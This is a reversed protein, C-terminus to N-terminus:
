HVDIDRVQSSPVPSVETVDFECASAPRARRRRLTRPLRSGIPHAHRISLNSSSNRMASGSPRGARRRRRSRFQRHLRWGPPRRASDIEYAGVHDIPIELVPSEVPTTRRAQSEAAADAAPTACGTPPPSGTRHVPRGQLRAMPVRTGRHPHDSRTRAPMTTRRGAGGCVSRASRTRAPRRIPGCARSRSGGIGANGDTPASGIELIGDKRRWARTRCSRDRPRSTTASAGSRRPQRTPWRSLVASTSYVQAGCPRRRDRRPRPLLGCGAVLWAAVVLRAILGKVDPLRRVADGPDTRPARGRHGDDPRPPHRAPRHRRRGVTPRDRLLALGRARVDRPDAGRLRRAGDDSAFGGRVTSLVRAAQPGGMVSIRSNPWTWLFRPQYARGAM